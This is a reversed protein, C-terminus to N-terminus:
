RVRLNDKVPNKQHEGQLQKKSQEGALMSGPIGLTIGANELLTRYEKQQMYHSIPKGYENKGTALRWASEGLRVNTDILPVGTQGWQTAMANGVLPVRREAEHIVEKIYTNEPREPAGSLQQKVQHVNHRIGAEWLISATIASGLAAAWFVNKPTPKMAASGIAESGLDHSIVSWIDLYTNGYQFLTRALSVNGRKQEFSKALSIIQPMDEVRVSATTRRSIAMAKNLAQADVPIDAYTSPDIGKRALERQYAGLATTMSHITDVMRIPFTGAKMLKGYLRSTGSGEGFVIDTLPHGQSLNAVDPDEGLKSLISPMNKSVFDRGRT